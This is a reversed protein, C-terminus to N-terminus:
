AEGGDPVAWGLFATILTSLYVAVDAPIEVKGYTKLAWVLIGVIAGSIAVTTIKASPIISAM